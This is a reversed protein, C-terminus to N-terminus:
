LVGQGAKERGTQESLMREVEEDSLAEVEELLSRRESKPRREEPRDSEQIGSVSLLYDALAAPTPYNFLLTAPLTRQLSAGLSNRLEISLLSDLGLEHLPQGPAIAQEQPLGLTARIREELLQRLVNRQQTKGAGRLKEMWPEPKTRRNEAAAHAGGGSGGELESLLRKHWAPVPQALYQGWNMALVMARPGAGSEMLRELASLGERISMAKMGARAGREVVGHREAMGTEGWAGWSVSLAPLNQARRQQALADLFANAAAYNSQGPSGLAGAISSFLVFADLPCNRTLRDLHRAGEAKGALVREFQPWDQGALAADELVGACHFVGRLPKGTVIAAAVDREQSVDGRHVTVVTGAGRMAEFAGVADPSPASRGMVVVEGAGRQALWQALQLGLGSLGGTVLYAGDKRIAGQGQAGGFSLVVKGVHRAQAMWRFAEQAQEAEFIAHPLPELSGERLREMLGTLVRAVIADNGSLDIPFYGVDPRTRQVWEQSRLDAVGLELFRGGPALASFGADLLPGVLSNLVVDVGRGDTAERVEDAFGASRSNMVRSVGMARLRARKEQSGATAFIVAGAARAIQIAALGVGGAGAHILVSEGPQIRAVEMLAYQATLFAIPLSAAAAFSLREPKKWVLEAKATV